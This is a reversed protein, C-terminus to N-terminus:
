DLVLLPCFVRFASRLLFACISHICVNLRVFLCYLKLLVILFGCHGGAMIENRKDREYCFEQFATEVEKGRKNKSSKKSFSCKLINLVCLLITLLINEFCPISFLSVIHVLLFFTVM